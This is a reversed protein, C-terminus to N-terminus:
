GQALLAIRERSSVVVGGPEEVTIAFLYPEAVAIKADIPVVVEATGPAMDFVGGDVPYREDRARDFIWLQYQFATPENAALGTFRMFGQQRENNWVVEGTAGVATADETATWPLRLTAEDALLDAPTPAVATATDAPITETALEPTQVRPWWGAIALILAAAAAWWGFTGTARRSPASPERLNEPGLHRTATEVLRLKVREPMPQEPGLLALHIAAAAQEFGLADTEPAEALLRDLRHLDGQSLGETVKTALLEYMEEAAHTM